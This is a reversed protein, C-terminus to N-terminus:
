TMILSPCPNATNNQPVKKVEGFNIHPSDFVDGTIFDRWWVREGGGGARRLDISGDIDERKLGADKIALRTAEVQLTRGTIGVKRSTVMGFGAM